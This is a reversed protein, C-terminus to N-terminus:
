IRKSFLRDISDNSSIQIFEEASIPFFEEKSLSSTKTKKDLELVKSVPIWFWTKFDSEENSIAYWIQLNFRRQLSSYKKTENFDICFNGYDTNIKKYKVDVLIFGFNELLIIFDPRKLKDEFVSSFTEKEQNIYLYPIKHKELWNKFNLEARDGIDSINM